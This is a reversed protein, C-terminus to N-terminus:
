GSWGSQRRRGTNPRRHAREAGRGRGLGLYFRGPFMEELTAAAQAIIAPHYRYGPPTVGPGFRLKTTAGLAGMFSWVFGSQGQSPVWPNFHDSAMVATFGQDEAQQCYTLLDRRTFSSWDVGRLWHTGM